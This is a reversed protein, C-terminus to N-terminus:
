LLFLITKKKIIIVSHISKELLPEEQKQSLTLYRKMM